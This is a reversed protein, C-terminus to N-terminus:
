RQLFCTFQRIISYLILQEGWWQTDETTMGEGQQAAVAQQASNNEKHGCCSQPVSSQLKIIRDVTKFSKVRAHPLAQASAWIGLNGSKVTEQFDDRSDLVISNYLDKIFNITLKGVLIVGTRMQTCLKVATAELRRIFRLVDVVLPYLLNRRFQVALEGLIIRHPEFLHDMLLYAQLRRLLHLQDLSSHRM